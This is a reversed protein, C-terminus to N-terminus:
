SVFRSNRDAMVIYFKAQTNQSDIGSLFQGMFRAGRAPRKNSKYILCGPFNKNMRLHICEEDLIRRIIPLTLLTQQNQLNHNVTEELYLFLLFSFILNRTPRFNRTEEFLRPRISLISLKILYRNIILLLADKDTPHHSTCAAFLLLLLSDFEIKLFNWSIQCNRKFQTM